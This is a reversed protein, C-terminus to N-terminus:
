IGAILSLNIVFNVSFANLVVTVVVSTEQTLSPKISYRVTINQTSVKKLFYKTVVAFGTYQQMIQWLCNLSRHLNHTKTHKLLYLQKVATYM